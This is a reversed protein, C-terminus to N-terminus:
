AGARAKVIRPQGFIDAFLEVDRWGHKKLLNVVSKGQDYGIELVLGGNQTLYDQAQAAIIRYPDLGDEGGHLALAPDFDSVDTPLEAMALSDIYPPNSIILDYRGTVSSLWDSQLLTLRSMVDHRAANAHAVGLAKDSIDTATGVANERECLLTVIIAGSGTGLDLLKPAPMNAIIELGQAVVEETEQRPSLVDKNINFRRGFFDRWGLIHDVPEGALRRASYDQLLDFAEPSIFETGQTILESRNLGTAAMVLDRAEADCDGLGAQEFQKTLFRRANNANLGSYPGSRPREHLPVPAKTM